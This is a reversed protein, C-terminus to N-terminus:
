CVGLWRLVWGAGYVFLAAVAGIIIGARQSLFYDITPALPSFDRLVRRMLKRVYRWKRPNEHLWYALGDGLMALLEDPNDGTLSLCATEGNMREIRILSHKTKEMM